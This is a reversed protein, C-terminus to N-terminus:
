HVLWTSNALPLFVEGNELKPLLATAREVKCPVGGQGRIRKNVPDVLEPHFEPRLEQCLPPGHHANEILVRHPHWRRLTDRVGAKLGDWNVRDRWVHRLFLFKY